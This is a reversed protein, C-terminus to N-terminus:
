ERGAATGEESVAYYVLANVALFNLLLYLVPFFRVFIFKGTKRSLCYCILILAGSIVSIGARPISLLRDNFLGTLNIAVFVLKFVICPPMIKMVNKECYAQWEPSISRDKISLTWKSIKTM